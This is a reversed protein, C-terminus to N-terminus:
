AHMSFHEEMSYTQFQPLEPSGICVKMTLTSQSQPNSTGVTTPTSLHQKQASPMIRLDSKHSQTFNTTLRFQKIGCWEDNWAKYKKKSDLDPDGMLSQQFNGKPGNLM